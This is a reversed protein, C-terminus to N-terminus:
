NFTRVRKGFIFPMIVNQLRVLQHAVFQRLLDFIGQSSCHSTENTVCSSMSAEFDSGDGNFEDFLANQFGPNSRGSDLDSSAQELGEM